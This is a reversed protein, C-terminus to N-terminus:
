SKETIARIKKIAERRWSKVSAPSVNESEAIESPTKKDICYGILWKKQMPTLIEGYSRVIQENMIEQIPDEIGFDDHHDRLEENEHRRNQKNMENLMRGKICHYLYTSFAGKSGDYTKSAHWLAILGIQHYEEHHQMINLHKIHFYIMNQHKKVLDEFSKDEIM